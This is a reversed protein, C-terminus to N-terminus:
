KGLGSRQSRIARFAFPLAFGAAFVVYVFPHTFCYHADWSDGGEPFLWVYAFAILLVVAVLLVGTALGLSATRMAAMRERARRKVLSGKAVLVRSRASSDLNRM